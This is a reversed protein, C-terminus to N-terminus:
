AELDKRDFRSKLDTSGSFLNPPIEDHDKWIKRNKLWTRKGSTRHGM